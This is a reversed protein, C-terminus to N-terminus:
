SSTARRTWCMKTTSCGLAQSSSLSGKMLTCKSCEERDYTVRHHQKAKYLLLVNVISHPNHKVTVNRFEGELTGYTSGANCHIIVPNKAKRINTLLGPNAVQDATSQCDLLVWKKNVVGGEKKQAFINEGQDLDEEETGADAEVNAHMQKKKGEIEPCERAIHGRKGCKFCDKRLKWYNDRGEAQAFIAGEKSTTGAEQRHKNWGAPPQYANLIRLVAEPSKPYKSTGMAFNEKMGQKIDNYKAGNARSLMLAALFKGCITKKGDKLQESTAKSLDTGNTELERKLMNPFHTMSGVGGYEKIVKLMAMFDKHYDANSQETKQFFYFLNKIAAVIGMYKNSLLDFQCCYGHIMMLLKTVDNGSKATNYGQTGKLKNKLEASCQNYILAWANSENGKYRDMRSKMSKYDKKWGFVAMKFMDPDPDGNANCCVADTKKQKEPYNLIVREMQQITKVMDDQDKYTKHIYNKINKLLKSFKAPNSSAGVNFTNNELGEV